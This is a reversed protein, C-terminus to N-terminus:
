CDKFTDPTPDLGPTPFPVAPAAGGLFLFNLISVAASIDVKGSDSVDAADLCAPTAGGTFLYNLMRVADTIDVKGNGDTDGRLFASPYPPQGLIVEVTSGKLAGPLKTLSEVIFMNFVRSIAPNNVLNVETKAGQPAGESVDFVFNQLTQNQGPPLFQYEPDHPPEFEFICGVEFYTEFVNTVYVEPVPRGSLVTFALEFSKLNLYNPDYTGMVQFGQIKEKRTTILPFWVNKQGPFVRQDPLSMTYFPNQVTIFRERVREAHTGGPGAVKLTVDYQGPETYTHVPNKETSTFGDGFDWSWVQIGGSSLDGFRVTLPVEGTTPIGSLEAVPQAATNRYYVEGGRIYSLHINNQLDIELSPHSEVAETHGCVSQPVTLFTSQGQIYYIDGDKAYVITVQGLNLVRMKPDLIGGADVLLPPRFEPSSFPKIAYYLSNLSEYAILINGAPDVGVSASSEPEKATTTVRLENQFSGGQSNNYFLDNDRSYVLHVIGADDVDLHPYDGTEAQVPEQDGFGLNWYMVRAQQLQQDVAQAWVLHPVSAQDLVLRPAYDDSRNRTVRLPVKFQGGGGENNTLYIERGEGPTAEDLQSFSMYTIGRVTTAFDPDGQGLGAAVVPVVADLGPGIIKVQIKERIVSSIYANNALDLGTATQTAMGSGDTVRREESFPACSGGAQARLLGSGLSALACFALGVCQAVALGQLAGSHHRNM